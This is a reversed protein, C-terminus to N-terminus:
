KEEFLGSPLTSCVGGGTQFLFSPKWPRVTPSAKSLVTYVHSGNDHEPSQWAGIGFPWKTLQTGLIRRLVPATHGSQLSAILDISVRVRDLGCSGTSGSESKLSGGQGWGGTLDGVAAARQRHHKQKEACVDKTCLVGYRSDGGLSCLSCFQQPSLPHPGLMQCLSRCPSHVLSGWWLRSPVSM